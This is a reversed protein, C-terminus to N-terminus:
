RPRHRQSGPGRSNRPSSVQRELNLGLARARADIDFLAGDLDTNPWVQRMRLAMSSQEGPFEAHVLAPFRVGELERYDGKETVAILNGREDFRECRAIVWPPGTAVVRREPSRRPGIELTASQSAADYQTMRVSRRKLSAWAEPLFMEQAIEAPSVKRGPMSEFEQGEISYYPEDKSAPFEVLFANGVCTMRFIVAGLYKRGVVYLDAPQRFAITSHRFKQTATLEPSVLTFAGTAKFNRIAGENAALDNLIEEISPAGPPLTGREVREGLRACGAFMAVLSLIAAAKRFRM